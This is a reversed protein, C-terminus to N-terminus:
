FFSYGPYLGSSKKEITVTEIKKFQEEDMKFDNRIYENLWKTARQLFFNVIKSKIQYGLSIIM